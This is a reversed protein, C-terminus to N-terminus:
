SLPACRWRSRKSSCPSVQLPRGGHANLRSLESDARFRSCALDIEALELEVQLRAHPLAGPDSVALVVSSGLAQWTAYAPEGCIRASAAM